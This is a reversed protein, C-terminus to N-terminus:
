PHLRDRAQAEVQGYLRTDTHTVAHETDRTAPAGVVFAGGHKAPWGTASLRPAPGSPAAGRGAPWGGACRSSEIRGANLADYMAGHGRRHEPAFPLGVLTRVPGDTCLLAETLEFLVDARRTMCQYLQERFGALVDIAEARDTVVAVVIEIPASVAGRVGARRLTM